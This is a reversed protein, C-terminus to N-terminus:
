AKKKRRNKEVDMIYISIYFHFNI